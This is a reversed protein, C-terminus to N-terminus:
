GWKYLAAKLEIHVKAHYECVFDLKTPKYGLGIYDKLM